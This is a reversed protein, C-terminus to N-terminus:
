ASSDCGYYTKTLKATLKNCTETLINETVYTVQKREEDQVYEDKEM